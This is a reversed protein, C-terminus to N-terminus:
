AAISAVCTQARLVLGERRIIFAEQINISSGVINASACCISPLIINLYSQNAFWKFYSAHRNSNKTLISM